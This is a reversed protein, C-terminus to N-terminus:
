VRDLGDGPCERGYVRRFKTTDAHEELVPYYYGEFNPRTCLNINNRWKISALYSFAIYQFQSILHLCIISQGLYTIALILPIIVARINQGWVIWCRYIKSSKPSYFPQYTCDYHNIRVIICQAIFDCCGSVTTQVISLRFITPQSDIQLQPSLTRIRSQVISKFFIINKCISNNSVELILTVLDGIFTVTSLVYLLCLAYFLITATGYKKSSCQLYLAFIGSYLGLGPFLKSKNLM